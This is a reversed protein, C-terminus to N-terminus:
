VGNRDRPSHWWLRRVTGTESSRTPDVHPLAGARATPGPRGPPCGWVLPTHPKVRGRERRRNWCLAGGVRVHQAGSIASPDCNSIHFGGMPGWQIPCQPSGEACGARGLACVYRASRLLEACVLAACAQSVSMSHTPPATSTRMPGKRLHPLPPPPPAASPIPPTDINHLMHM